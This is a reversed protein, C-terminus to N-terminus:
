LCRCFAKEPMKKEMRPGLLMKRKWILGTSHQNPLSRAITFGGRMTTGARIWPDLSCRTSTCSRRSLPPLFGSERLMRGKLGIIFIDSRRFGRKVLSQVVAEVLNAPTSLGPGSNSYVKLGVKGKEGPKFSMEQTREYIGLLNEVAATYSKLDFDEIQFKFVRNSPEPIDSFEGILNQGQVLPYASGVIWLVGLLCHRSLLRYVHSLIM